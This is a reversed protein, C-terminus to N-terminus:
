FNKYGPKLDTSCISPPYLLRKGGTFDLAQKTLADHEAAGARPMALIRYSWEVLEPCFAKWYYLADYWPPETVYRDGRCIGKVVARAFAEASEVPVLGILAQLEFGM